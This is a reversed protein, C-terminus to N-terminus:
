LEPVSFVATTASSQDSVLTAEEACVFVKLLGAEVNPALGDNNISQLCGGAYSCTLDAQASAPTTYVNVVTNATCVQHTVTIGANETVIKLIPSEVAFPLPVGADWTGTADGNGDVACSDADVGAFSVTCGTAGTMALNNGTMVLTTTSSLVPSTYSPVVASTQTTYTCSLGFLGQCAAQTGDVKIAVTIAPSVIGAITTCELVGYEPVRTSACIDSGDAANVLMVSDIDDEGMGSIIANFTAGCESGETTELGMFEPSFTM